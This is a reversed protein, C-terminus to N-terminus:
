AVRSPAAAAGCEPCRDPSARLDYGCQQCRGASISRRHKLRRRYRALTWMLPLLLLVAVPLWAPFVAYGDHSYITPDTFGEQLFAFGHRTENPIMYQVATMPTQGNRRLDYWLHEWTLGAPEDHSPATAVPSGNYDVGNIGYSFQCLGLVCRIEFSRECWVKTTPGPEYKIRLACLRWYSGIWAGSVGVGILLSVVSCISLLRRIVRGLRGGRM